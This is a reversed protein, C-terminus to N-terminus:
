RIPPLVHCSFSLSKLAIKKLEAIKTKYEIAISINNSYVSKHLDAISQIIEFTKRTNKDKQKNVMDLNTADM